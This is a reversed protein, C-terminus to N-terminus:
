GAATARGLAAAARAIDEAAIGRPEEIDEFVEYGLQLCREINGRSFRLLARAGEPSLQFEDDAVGQLLGVRDRFIRAVDEARTLARLRIDLCSLGARRIRQALDRHTSVAARCGEDRLRALFAVLQRKSLRDAEDLLAVPALPLAAVDLEGDPPLYIYALSVGQEALRLETQKLLTTKGMGEDGLIHLCDAKGELFRLAEPPWQYITALREPSIPEFPNDV